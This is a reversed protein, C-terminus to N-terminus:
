PALRAGDADFASLADVPCVRCAELLRDRDVPGPEPVFCVVGDAGMAFVEPANLVCDEFGVCVLPDIRVTLGGITRAAPDDM